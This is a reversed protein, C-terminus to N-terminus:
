ENKKLWLNHAEIKTRIPINFINMWRYITGPCYNCEKAIKRISKNLIWYQEYLFEKSFSFKILTESIKKKTENSVIHGQLTRSIKKKAEPHNKYFEKWIKSMKRKSIDSHKKGMNSTRIKRKTEESMPNKKFREKVIISMKHKIEESLKGYSGGHRNNYGFKNNLTNYKLIYYEEKKDLNDKDKASDIIKRKFNQIGYKEISRILHLNPHSLKISTLTMSGRVGKKNTTQGIYRKNNIKNKIEYIYGYPRAFEVINKETSIM